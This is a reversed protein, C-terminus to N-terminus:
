GTGVKLSSAKSLTGARKLLQIITAQDQKAKAALKKATEADLRPLIFEKEQLAIRELDESRGM